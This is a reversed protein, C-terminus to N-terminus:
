LLLYSLTYIIVPTCVFSFFNKQDLYFNGTNKFTSFDQQLKQIQKSYDHQSSLISQIREDQKAFRESNEQQNKIKEFKNQRGIIILQRQVFNKFRQCCKDVSLKATNMSKYKYNSSNKSRTDTQNGYEPNPCFSQNETSNYYDTVTDNTPNKAQTETTNGMQLLIQFSFM